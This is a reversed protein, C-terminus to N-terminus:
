VRGALGHQPIMMVVCPATSPGLHRRAGLVAGTRRQRGNREGAQRPHWAKWPRPASKTPGARCLIHSISRPPGGVSGIALGEPNRSSASRRASEIERTVSQSLNQHRRPSRSLAGGINMPLFRCIGMGAEIWEESNGPRRLSHSTHLFEFICLEPGPGTRFHARCPRVPSNENRSTVTSARHLAMKLAPPGYPQLRVLPRVSNRRAPFHAIPPPTRLEGLSSNEPSFQNLPGSSALKRFM